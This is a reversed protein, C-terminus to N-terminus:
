QTITIRDSVVTVSHTCRVLESQAYIASRQIQSFRISCVRQLNGGISGPIMYTSQDLDSSVTRDIHIVAHRQSSIDTGAAIGTAHINLPHYM